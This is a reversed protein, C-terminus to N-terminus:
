PSESNIYPFRRSTLSPEQARRLVEILLLGKADTGIFNPRPRHYVEESTSSAIWEIWAYLMLVVSSLFYTIFTHNM